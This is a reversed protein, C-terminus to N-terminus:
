SEKKLCVCKPDMNENSLSSFERTNTQYAICIVSGSVSLEDQFIPRKGQFSMEKKGLMPIKLPNKNDTKAM